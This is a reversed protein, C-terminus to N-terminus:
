PHSPCYLSQVYGMWIRDGARVRDGTYWWSHGLSGCELIVFYAFTNEYFHDLAEDSVVIYM